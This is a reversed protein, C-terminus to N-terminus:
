SITMLVQLCNCPTICLCVSAGQPEGWGPKGQVVGELFDVHKDLAEQLTEM